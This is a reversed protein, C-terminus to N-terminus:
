MILEKKQYFRQTVLLAVTHMNAKTVQKQFERVVIHSARL